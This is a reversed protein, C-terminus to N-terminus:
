MAVTARISELTAQWSAVDSAPQTCSTGTCAYARPSEGGMMAKLPAPLVRAAAAHPALLQVVRRPVFEALAARHMAQVIPDHADGVMVLHTAPNVQWDVGLLYASAHLGLEQARGAFAAVLAGARERWRSDGTIEHLRATVIGAVGNPSPTPTDQIPKARSPLLGAEGTRGRATDFLGGARDDWFDVWVRDMIQEAWVLWEQDGTFEFADLAAAAVQVQDDLLGTVGGPTHAIADTQSNERRMRTLTLLAHGSAWEDQLV